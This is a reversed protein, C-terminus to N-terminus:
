KIELFLVGFHCKKQIIQWKRFYKQIYIKNNQIPKKNILEQLQQM